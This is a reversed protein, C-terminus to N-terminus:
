TIGISSYSKWGPGMSLHHHITFTSIYLSNFVTRKLHFSASTRVGNTYLHLLPIGPGLSGSLGHLTGSPTGPTEQHNRFTQPPNQRQDQTHPSSQHLLFRSFAGTSALLVPPLFAHLSSLCGAVCLTLKAPFVSQTHTTLQHFPGCTLYFLAHLRRRGTRGQWGCGLLISSM